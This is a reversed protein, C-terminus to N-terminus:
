STEIKPQTYALQDHDVNEGQPDLKSSKISYNSSDGTLTYRYFMEYNKRFKGCKEIMFSMKLKYILVDSM